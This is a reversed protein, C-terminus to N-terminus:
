FTLVYHTEDEETKNQKKITPDCKEEKSFTLHKKRCTKLIGCSEFSQAFVTYSLSSFTDRMWSAVGEYAM